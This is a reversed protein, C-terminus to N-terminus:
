KQKISQCQKLRKILEEESTYTFEDGPIYYLTEPTKNRPKFLIEKVAGTQEDEYKRLAISAMKLGAIYKWCFGPKEM